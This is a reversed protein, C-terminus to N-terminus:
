RIIAPQAVVINNTELPLEGRRTREGNAKEIEYGKAKSQYLAQDLEAIEGIGGKMEIVGIGVRINEKNFEDMFDQAAVVAGESDTDPLMLIFEDGGTRYGLDNERKRRVFVSRVAEGVSAIYRDGEDHGLTDNIIKLGQVDLAIASLPRGERHAKVMLPYLESIYANKNRLGTQQDIKADEALQEIQGKLREIEQAMDAMSRKKRVEGISTIKDAWRRKPQIESPQSPGVEQTNEAM